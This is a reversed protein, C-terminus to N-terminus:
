TNCPLRRHKPPDQFISVSWIAFNLRARADMYCLLLWGAQDESVAVSVSWTSPVTAAKQIRTSTFVPTQLTVIEDHQTCQM